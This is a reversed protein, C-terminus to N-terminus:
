AGPYAVDADPCTYDGNLQLAGVQVSLGSGSTGAVNEMTLVFAGQAATVISPMREDYLVKSTRDVLRAEGPVVIVATPETLASRAPTGPGGPPLVIRVFRGKAPAAGCTVSTVTIMPYFPNQLVGPRVGTVELKSTVPATTSTTPPVTTTPLATGAVGHGCGTLALPGVVAGVVAARRWLRGGAEWAWPRTMTGVIGM